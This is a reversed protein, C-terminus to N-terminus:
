NSGHKSKEPYLRVVVQEQVNRRQREYAERDRASQERVFRELNSRTREQTRDYDRLMARLIRRNLALVIRDVLREVAFSIRSM